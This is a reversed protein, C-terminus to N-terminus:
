GSQLLSQVADLRGNWAAAEIATCGNEGVCYNDPRIRRANPNAGYELLRHMISIHGYKAAIQFAIDGSFRISPTNKIDLGNHLLFDAIDFRESLILECLIRERIQWPRSNPDAGADLLAKVVNQNGWFAA